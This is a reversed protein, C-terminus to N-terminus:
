RMIATLANPPPTVYPGSGRVLDVRMRGYDIIVRFNKLLNEGIIGAANEQEGSSYMPLSRFKGAWRDIGIDLDDIRGGRKQAGGLGQLLAGHLRPAIQTIPLNMIQHENLFTIESGTDLVFVFWGHGNITGRVFPRFGQIFLNQNVAPHRDAPTLRTFTVVSRSFDLDTRFEKLFNAGLLFDLKFERRGSVIFRMKDDPMIAIPVNEVVIDGVTVSDLLGFEVSIPEGLLGYFTGKINPLRRISMEDALRESAISIVAGTDIVANATKRGNLRVDIRPVDPRNFRMAIQSSPLGSARYIQTGSLARLYDLHWRKVMLGHSTAAEAWDLSAAYNNSLYEVQSLSWELHAATERFPALDIAARLHRRAEDYRGAILEVNGLAQLESVTKRQRNDVTPTFEIARLYDSKRLMSQLDSGRDIQMPNINLPSISVDSYLSCGALVLILPVLCVMCPRIRM